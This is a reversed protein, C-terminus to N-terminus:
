LEEDERNYTVPLRFDAGPTRYQIKTTLPMRRKHVTSIWRSKVEAVLKVNIDLQQAIDKTKMFHELGYLILDLTGYEMGLEDQALQDPWLTPSAPKTVVVEPLDMYRALRRVQTKYLDMIPSIDAAIDGWKTFYGIMTESKDSTGCVLMNKHNAYYYLYIMRIRSKVNGKSLRDTSEFIPISTYLERLAKTIDITEVKFGFRSTVIKIDASDTASYTEHEPLFLGLVRNGGTALACLASATCSDVGGSIGLVVGKRGSNEM